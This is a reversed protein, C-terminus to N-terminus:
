VEGQKTKIPPPPTMFVLKRMDELHYHLADVTSANGTGDAPRFGARWLENFLGQMAGRSLRATPQILTGQKYEKLELPSAVFSQKGQKSFFALEYADLWPADHFKLELSDEFM